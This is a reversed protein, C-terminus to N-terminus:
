IPLFSLAALALGTRQAKRAESAQAAAAKRDAAMKAADGLQSQSGSFVNQGIDILNYFRETNIDRQKLAAQNMANTTGLVASSFLDKSGQAAQAATLSAGFRSRNRAQIDASTQYNQLGGTAQDILSTDTLSENVVDREFQGFNNRFDVYEQKTIDALAKQPDAVYNLKDEPNKIGKNLKDEEQATMMALKNTAKRMGMGSNEWLM